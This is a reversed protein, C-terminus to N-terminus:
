IKAIKPNLEIIVADYNECFERLRLDNTLYKTPSLIIKQDMHHMGILSHEIIAPMFNSGILFININKQNNSDYLVKGQPSILKFQLDVLSGCNIQPSLNKVIHYTKILQNEMDQYFGDILRNNEQSLINQLNVLFYSSKASSFSRQNKIQEQINDIRDIKDIYIKRIEDIQMGVVGRNFYKGLNSLGVTAFFSKEAFDDNILNDYEDFMSINFQAFQGCHLVLAEDYSHKIIDFRISQNTQLSKNLHANFGQQLILYDIRRLIFPKITQALFNLIISEQGSIVSNDINNREEAFLEKNKNLIFFLFIIILFQFILKKM